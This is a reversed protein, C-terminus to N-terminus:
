MFGTTRSRTQILLLTMPPLGSLQVDIFYKWSKKDSTHYRVLGEDYVYIKLPDVGTVLVYVRLDFKCRRVVLMINKTYDNVDLVSRILYPNTIYKQILVSEETDPIDDPNNIM